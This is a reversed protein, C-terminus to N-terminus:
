FRTWNEKIKDKYDSNLMCILKLRAKVGTLEEEFIVGIDELQKGAGKTDYVTRVGGFYSRTTLVVPIQADIIMKIIDQSEPNVAGVGFGEIVLGLPKLSLISKLLEVPFDTTMRILYVRNTFPLDLTKLLNKNVPYYHYSAKGGYVYGMPGSGSATFGRVGTSNSKTSLKVSLIEQNFVVLVGKGVSEDDSAVIIADRINASGDFGLDKISRQSGTIVIPIKTDVVLNLFYATEELTDTGHTIVIGNFKNESIIEELRGKIERLDKLTMETSPISRFNEIDLDLKLDSLGSQELLEEATLSGSKLYGTKPDVASTITGGLNFLKIKKM